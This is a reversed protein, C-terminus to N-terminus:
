RAYGELEQRAAGRLGKRTSRQESRMVKGEADKRWEELKKVECEGSVVQM